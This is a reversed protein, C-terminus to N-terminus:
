KGKVARRESPPAGMGQRSIFSLIGQTTKVQTTKVRIGYDKFLIDQMGIVTDLYFFHLKRNSWKYKKRKHVM